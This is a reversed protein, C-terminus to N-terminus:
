ENAIDPRTIVAAFNVSGVRQQYYHIQRPTAQRDYPVLETLPLPTKPTKTVTIHFKDALKEIYSDQVLWLKREQRNRIIRIGLFHTADGIIRFEYLALLKAEFQAM